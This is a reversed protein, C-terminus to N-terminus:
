AERCLEKDALLRECSATEAFWAKFEMVSVLGDGDTDMENCMMQVARPVFASHLSNWNADSQLVLELESKDIFGDRNTDFHRFALDLASTFIEPSSPLVAAVFESWEIEGSKSLDVAEASLDAQKSSVGSSQLARSLEERSICGTNSQNIRKFIDVLPVLEALPLQTAAKAVTASWWFRAEREQFHLLANVQADNLRSTTGLVNFWSLELCENASPRQKENILLMRRVADQADSSSHSIVDM